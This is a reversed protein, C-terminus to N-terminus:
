EGAIAGSTSLQILLVMKGRLRKPAIECVYVGIVSLFLGEGAGAICRGFILVGLTNSSASIASGISFILCGISIAQERGRYDSLLGAFVGATFHCYTLSLLHSNQSTWSKSLASPVLIIAVVFGRILPSLIGFHNEFYPMTTIAGISGTSDNFLWRQVWAYLYYRVWEFGFIGGAISVLCSCAIVRATPSLKSLIFPHDISSLQPLKM